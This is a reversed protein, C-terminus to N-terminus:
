GGEMQKKAVDHQPHSELGPYLVDVGDVSDLSTAIELASSCQRRVRCRTVYLM